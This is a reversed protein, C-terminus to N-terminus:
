LETTTQHFAYWKIAAMLRSRFCGVAIVAVTANATPAVGAAKTGSSHQKYVFTVKLHRFLISELRVVIRHLNKDERRKERSHRSRTAWVYVRRRTKLCRICFVIWKGGLFYTWYWVLIFDLLSWCGVWVFYLDIISCIFQRRFTIFAFENVIKKWQLREVDWLLFLIM